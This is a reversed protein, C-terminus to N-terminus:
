AVAEEDTYDFTLPAPYGGREMHLNIGSAWEVLGANNLARFVGTTGRTDAAVAGVLAHIHKAETETLELIYTTETVVREIVETRSTTYSECKAM